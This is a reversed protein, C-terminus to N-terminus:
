RVTNEEEAPAGRNSEEASGDDEVAGNMLDDISRLMKAVAVGLDTLEVFTTNNDFRRNDYTVLGSSLLSDLKERLNSNPLGSYVDMKKSRGNKLLYLLMTIKYKDELVEIPRNEV